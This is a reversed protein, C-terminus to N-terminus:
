IFYDLPTGNSKELKRVDMGGAVSFSNMDQIMLAIKLDGSTVQESTDMKSVSWLDATLNSEEGLNTVQTPNASGEDGELTDFISVDADVFPRLDDSRSAAFVAVDATSGVPLIADVREVEAWLHEDVLRGDQGKSSALRYNFLSLSEQKTATDDAESPVDLQDGGNTPPPTDDTSPAFVGQEFVFFTDGVLGTSGNAHDFTSTAYVVNDRASPMVGTQDGILGISEIGLSELTVLEDAESIGNQNGDIWVQFTSFEIDGPDLLNNNNSDFAKLGELDSFAGDVYQQFSIESGDDIVGNSNVDLVLLGDGGTFWGTRDGIGDGDMDFFINSEAISVLELGDGDLDLVVPAIQRYRGDGFPDDWYDDYYDDDSYGGGSGGGGVAPDATSGDTGNVSLSLTATKSRNLSDTARITLNFNQGSSITGLLHLTGDLGIDWPGAANTIEWTMNANEPDDLMLQRLNIAFGNEDPMPVFPGLAKSYYNVVISSSELNHLENVDEVQVTVRSSASRSGNGSNRDSVLIDYSYSVPGTEYDLSGENLIVRGTDREMRFKGDRSFTVYKGAVLSVMSEAFRFDIGTDGDPDTTTMATSAGNVAINEDIAVTFGQEPVLPANNTGPVSIEIEIPVISVNDDADRVLVSFSDNGAADSDPRYRVQGTAANVIELTGKAPLGDPNLEYSIINQDRDTVGLSADIATWKTREDSQLGLPDNNDAVIESLPVISLEPAGFQASWGHSNQDYYTFFRGYARINQVGPTWRYTNVNWIKEGTEADFVGGYNQYSGVGTSSPLIYGVLKYWKDEDLAAQQSAANHQLFYSAYANNGNSLLQKAHANGDGLAVIGSYISHKTLDSKRVYQTYKYAKTHDISVDHTYNGGGNNTADFQGAELAVIKRGDPGDVEQWRAEGDRAAWSTNRWGEVDPQRVFLADTQIDLREGDKLVADREIERVEPKYFHTFQGQRDTNYFNFFRSYTSDSARNPDWRFHQIDRVKEGTETDYVGGFSGTAATGEGEPLVYGVVKYWKDAEIGSTANPYDHTFYPNGNVSDNNGNRVIGRTGFYVRHKNLEDAKFYYTFEYAKSGDISFSNTINGGGASAADTQGAHISVVQQNYPGSTASWSTDNTYSSSNNWSSLIANGSPVADVDNAWGNDNVLNVGRGTELISPWGDNNFANAAENIITVEQTEDPARPAAFDGSEWYRDLKNAFWRPLSPPAPEDSLERVEPKYFHTNYGNESGYHNFFRTYAADSSRNENWRFTQTDLIKEGTQADFVGGLTTDSQSASGEPLVYGVVKYWREAELNNNQTNPNAAFFYPNNNVGNTDADKVLGGRLGFYIDHIAAEDNKFYYTFEYGKSGDITFTDSLAGGGAGGGNEQGGHLTAIDFGDPGSTVSWETEGIYSSTWGSIPAGDAPKTEAATPWGSLDVLNGSAAFGGTMQRIMEDVETSGLFLTGDAAVIKDLQTSGTFYNTFRAVSSGGVISLQLDNGNRTLWVQDRTLGESLIVQNVGAADTITDTGDNAGIIYTDNGAGGNISDDGLGGVIQDDGAEGLITDNGEGGDIQDNGNGGYMQYDDGAGGILIDNGNQGLLRDNGDGGVLTDVGDDGRLYDNGEDGALNDNGAGGYLYDNSLGGVLVDDGGEGKLVDSGGLGYARNANDDGTFRDRVFDSGVFNEFGSLVDGQADGGIQAAGTAQKRFDVNIESGKSSAYRVTDGWSTPNEIANSNAGGQLNDAGAGGEIVDDGNQGRLVDNGGGGFIVDNGDGGNRTQASATGVILDDENGGHTNLKLNSLDASLGDHFQLYEIKGGVSSQNKITIQSTASGGYRVILDNGSNLFTIDAFHIKEGLELTDEGADASVDLGARAVEGNPAQAFGAIWSSSNFAPFTPSFEPQDSPHRYVIETGKKVIMRNYVFPEGFMWVLRSYEWARTFGAQLQGSSSVAIETGDAGEEIQDAGDHNSTSTANWVYTDDGEGGKLTDNAKGGEIINEGADGNLQDAHNSGTLNEIASFIDGAAEGTNRSPDALSVVVASAANAYSATDSGSGGSIFDGGVGGNLIDDGSGGYLVDTGADGRLSDAGSNGSLIDDGSNGRVTDDGEAGTIWDVGSGGNLAGDAADTGAILNTTTLDLIGTSYFALREINNPALYWDKLSISDATGDSSVIEEDGINLRLDNGERTLIIDSIQIDLGFEITDGVAPGPIYYPPYPIYINTPPGDSDAVTSGSSPAVQRRLTQAESDYEWNGIWRIDPNEETGFNKRVVTGDPAIVEGEANESYGNRWTGNGSTRSWVNVWSGAYEDYITDAGDGRNYKFIDDGEGGVLEDNGQGGSIIDQGAGGYLLDDGGDGSLVDAGAGGSLTDSDSGGVILDKGSDGSVYDRGTGGSGVDDGSLLFLQDNGGGGYVFDNGQTGILVDDGNTGVVFSTIDGIRIENGDAFKLWEVRRFVNSFWDKVTLQDGSFTEVGTDPNTEMIQIILDNGAGTSRKLRVDGLSIGTGLVIADEGGDVRGGRIGPTLYGFWDATVTGNELGAWRRAVYGAAGTSQADAYRQNILSLYSSSFQDLVDTGVDVDQQLTTSDSDTAIDAGDGRRLIYQDDGAGGFLQDGAGAGGALIDGGAKGHLADTGDGGELWDSGERGNLTDNGAGGDLFNGDGGLAGNQAGAHLTDAGDGGLLWDDLRGGYLTDNGDGGFVNNGLDGAHVTDNGAGADVTASVDVSIPSGDHDFGNVRLARNSTVHDAGGVVQASILERVEPKYFHTNYVNASGYFNFFRTNATNDPRSENWRFTTTNAVKDGTEVDFVGGMVSNSQNASGQPLVYGVVKYWKDAELSNNQTTSNAAYFYPNNNVAGNSANKVMSGGNVGFYISHVAAADNKFYYTFQYTKSGDIEFDQSYAGGGAGGGNEQGGHLTRVETGNPGATTSWETEGLYSSTWGQIATGDTPQDDPDFAPWESLDLLNGGTTNHTNNHNLTIVDNSATGEIHTIDASNITDNLFGEYDGNADSVIYTRGSGVGPQLSLEVQSFEMQLQQEFLYGFGGNWDSAARKHLGLEEARALTIAWGASFANSEGSSLILNIGTSNGFYTAYDSAIVLDAALGEMSFDTYSNVLSLHNTLARKAFINGGLLDFDPDTLATYTGFQVANQTADAGRWRQTIAHKSRSSYPRYVIDKKRMGYNGTQVAGPNDLTGGTADLISNLYGSVGQAMSQAAEKSGGKKSYVNEVGFRGAAENWAVDAGSRPTGGFLSGFLGGVIKWFAVAIVAAVLTVPNVGAAALFAGANWAGYAAGVASGIQGGVTDFTVIQDALKGGLFSAGASALATGNGVNAFVGIDAGGAISVINDFIQSVVTNGITQLGEGFVGDIGLGNVLEAVLFSSLAGIGASKIEGFLESDFDALVNRVAGSPLTQNVGGNAIVEFLNDGITALVPSVVLTNLTKDGGVYSSLTKGISSGLKGYNDLEGIAELDKRARELAIELEQDRNEDLTSGESQLPAVNVGRAQLMQNIDQLAQTKLAIRAARADIKDQETKLVGASATYDNINTSGPTAGSKLVLVGRAVLQPIRDTPITVNPDSQSTKYYLYLRYQFERLQSQGYGLQEDALIQTLTAADLNLEVQLNQLIQDSPQYTPDRSALTLIDNDTWGDLLGALETENTPTSWSHHRAAWHFMEHIVHRAFYVDGERNLLDRQQKLNNVHARNAPTNLSRNRRMARESARIAQDFQEARDTLGFDSVQLEFQGDTETAGFSSGVAVPGPQAIGGVVGGVGTPLNNSNSVLIYIGGANASAAAQLNALFTPDNRGAVIIKDFLEQQRSNAGILYIPPVQQGAPLVGPLNDYRIVSRVNGSRTQTSVVGALGVLNPVFNSDQRYVDVLDTVKYNTIYTGLGSSTRRPM